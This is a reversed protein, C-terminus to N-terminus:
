RASCGSAESLRAGVGFGGAPPSMGPIGCPTTSGGLELVNGRYDIGLRVRRGNKMADAQWVWISNPQAQPTNLSTYGQQQLLSRAQAESLGSQQQAANGAPNQKPPKNERGILAPASAPEQSPPANQDLASPTPVRQVPKKPRVIPPAAGTQSDIPPFNQASAMQTACFLLFGGLLFRPEIM